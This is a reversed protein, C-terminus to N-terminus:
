EDDYLSSGLRLHLVLSDEFDCSTTMRHDFLIQRDVLLEYSVVQLDARAFARQM